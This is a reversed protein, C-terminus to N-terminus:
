ILIRPFMDFAVPIAILAARVITFVGFAISLVAIVYLPRRFVSIDSPADHTM